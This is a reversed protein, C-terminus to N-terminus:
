TSLLIFFLVIWILLLFHWYTACLQISQRIAAIQLLDAQELGRKLKMATRSWVFLGGLLHLGHVATLLIFFSFAPSEIGYDGSLFLTRWALLQGLLFAMTLLGSANFYRRVPAFDSKNSESAALQFAISALVLLISNLWLIGPETVPMWNTMHGAAIGGHSSDMRMFYAGIFVLFLSAVVLFFAWLGVRPANSTLGGDHHSGEIVGQQLWPKDQLRRILTWAVLMSVCMAIFLLTFM